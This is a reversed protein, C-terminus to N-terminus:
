FANFSEVSYKLCQFNGLDPPAIGASVPASPILFFAVCFLLGILAITIIVRITFWKTCRFKKPPPTSGVNLASSTSKRQM